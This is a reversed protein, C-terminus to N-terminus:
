RRKAPEKQGLIESPTKGYTAKFSRDFSNSKGIAKMLRAFSGSDSKLKKVFLYGVLAARDSPMRNQIFDDPKVMEAMAAEARMDLSKMEDEKSYLKKATWLGLGDAFWRPMDLALNAVHLSAIQHALAVQVDEASQNRTMLVTAYADTINYGWHGAVDKPFDRKEIMKGFESFDYRKDFVFVSANGKVLPDKSNARLASAIKPAMKECLQSIDTLRSENTSGTVLFNDSPLVKSQVSDMVLKWTRTALDGRDALLEEHTQSAAKSRAAVLSTVMRSDGGDFAAGEDIWKAITEILKDDLKGSPPM